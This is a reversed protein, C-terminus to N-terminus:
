LYYIRVKDILRSSRKPAQCPIDHKNCMEILLTNTEPSEFDRPISVGMHKELEDIM